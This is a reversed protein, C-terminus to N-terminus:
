GTPRSPNRPLLTQAEEPSIDYRAITEQGDRFELRLGLGLAQAYRALDLVSVRLGRKEAVGLHRVVEERSLGMEKRLEWLHGLLWIFEEQLVEQYVRNLNSDTAALYELYERFEM